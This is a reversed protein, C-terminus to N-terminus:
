RMMPIMCEGLRGGAGMVEAKVDVDEGNGVAVLYVVNLGRSVGALQWRGRESVLALALSTVDDFATAIAGGHM